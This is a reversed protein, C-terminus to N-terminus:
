RIQYTKVFNKACKPYKLVIPNHNAILIGEYYSIHLILKFFYYNFRLWVNDNFSM